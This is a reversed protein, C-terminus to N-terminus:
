ARGSVKPGEPGTWWPRDDPSAARTSRTWAARPRRSFAPTSRGRRSGSRTMGSFTGTAGARRSGVRFAPYSDSGRGVALGEERGRYLGTCSSPGSAPLSGGPGHRSRPARLTPRPHGTRGTSGPTSVAGTWVRPRQPGSRGLSGEGTGAPVGGGTRRVVPSPLRKARGGLGPKLHSPRLGPEAGLLRAPAAPRPARAPAPGKSGCGWGTRRGRSGSTGTPALPGAGPARPAPPAATTPVGEGVDEVDVRQENEAHVRAGRRRGPRLAAPRLPAPRLRPRAADRGRTRASGAPTGPRPHRGEARAGAGM